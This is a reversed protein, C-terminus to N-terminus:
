ISWDEPNGYIDFYLLVCNHYRIMTYKKYKHINKYM